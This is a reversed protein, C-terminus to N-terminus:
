QCKEKADILLQKAVEADANDDLRVIIRLVNGNEQLEVGADIIPVGIITEIEKITDSNMVIDIRAIDIDIELRVNWDDVPNCTDNVCIMRKEEVSLCRSEVVPGVSENCKFDVCWGSRNEWEAISKEKPIIVKEGQFCVEEYCINGALNLDGCRSTQCYDTRNCFTKNQYDMPVCLTTLQNCGDFVKEKVDDDFVNDVFPDSTGLYSVVTLNSCGSFAYFGISKVSSPIVVEKLNSCGSFSYAGISGLGPEITLERLGYCGEFAHDGIKM